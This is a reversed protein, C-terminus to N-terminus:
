NPVAAGLTHFISGVLLLNVPIFLQLQRDNRLKILKKLKHKSIYRFIPLLHNRIQHYYSLNQVCSMALRTIGIATSIKM